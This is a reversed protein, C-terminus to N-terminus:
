ALSKFPNSGTQRPIGSAVAAVNQLRVGHTSLDSERDAFPTPWAALEDRAVEVTPGALAVRRSRCCAAPRRSSDILPVRGAASRAPQFQAVAQDLLPIWEFNSCARRVVVAPQRCTVSHANVRFGIVGKLKEVTPQGRIYRPGPGSLHFALCRIARRDDAVHQDAGSVRASDERDARHRPRPAAM